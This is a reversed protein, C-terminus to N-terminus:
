LSFLKDGSGDVREDDFNCRLEGNESSYLWGTSGDVDSSTMATTLTKVTNFGNYPNQPMQGVLYPGYDGATPDVAGDLNTKSLMCTEFTVDARSGPLQGEHQFKYMNIQSRLLQLDQILASEKADKNASTFQPLVTAALIGLIVVVILVEVLTFGLRKRTNEFQVTHM